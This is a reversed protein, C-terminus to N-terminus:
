KEEGGMEQKAFITLLAFAKLVPHDDNRAIQRAVNEDKIIQDILEKGEENGDENLKKVLNEFGKVYQGVGLNSIFEWDEYVTLLDIDGADDEKGLCVMSFRHLQSHMRNRIENNSVGVMMAAPYVSHEDSDVEFGDILEISERLALQKQNSQHKLLKLRAQLLERELLMQFLEEVVKQTEETFSHVSINFTAELLAQRKMYAVWRDVAPKLKPNDVGAQEVVRNLIEDIATNATKNEKKESM